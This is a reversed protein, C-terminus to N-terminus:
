QNTEEQVLSVADKSVEVKVDTGIKIVLFTEKVDVVRGFIGGSTLVRDNKKLQAIMDKRKKERKQQPRIVFFYFVIMFVPIISLTGMLNPQYQVPEM